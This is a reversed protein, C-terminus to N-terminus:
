LKLVVMTVIVIMLITPIENIFKLVRTSYSLRRDDAYWRHWTALKVHFVTLLIVCLLKTWAWLPLFPPASEIYPVLLIVGAVWAICMAPLAIFRMLRRSMIKLLTAESSGITTGHLYILLRPSYLLAAMWSIVGVIHIIKIVEMM